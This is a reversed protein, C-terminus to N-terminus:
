RRITTTRRHRRRHASYRSARRRCCTNVNACVAPQPLRRAQAAWASASTSRLSPSPSACPRGSNPQAIQRRRPTGGAPRGPNRHTVHRRTQMAPHYPPAPAHSPRATSAGAPTVRFSAPPVAHPSKAMTTGADQQDQPIWTQDLQTPFVGFVHLNCTKIAHGSSQCVSLLRFHLNLRSTQGGAQADATPRTGATAGVSHLVKSPDLRSHSRQRPSPRTTSKCLEFMAGGCTRRRPRSSMQRLGTAISVGPRSAPWSGADITPGPVPARIPCACSCSGACELFLVRSPSNWTRRPAATTIPPVFAAVPVLAVALM